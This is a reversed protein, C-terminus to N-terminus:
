LIDQSQLDIVSNKFFNFLFNDGSVNKNIKFIFSLFSLSINIHYLFMLQNGETYVGVLSQVRLRSIHGLQSDLGRGEPACSLAGVLQAM